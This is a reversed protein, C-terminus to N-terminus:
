APVMHDVMAEIFSAEGPTFFVYAAVPISADGANGGGVLFQATSITPVGMAAGGILAGKLLQRRSSNRLNKGMDGM